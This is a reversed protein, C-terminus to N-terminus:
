NSKIGDKDLLELRRRRAAARLLRRQQDAVLEARARGRHCGMAQLTAQMQEDMPEAPVDGVATALGFEVAEAASYWTEARMAQRVASRDVGAAAYIDAISESLKDLHKAYARLEDAGGIVGGWADHIMMEAGTAMIIERGAMAIVSAASAAIGTVRVVPQLPKLLHYIAVGEYAIGGPSHLIVELPGRHGDLRSAVEEHTLGDLPDGIVGSIRITKM